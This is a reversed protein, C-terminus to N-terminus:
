AKSKRKTVFSFVQLCAFATCLECRKFERRTKLVESPPGPLIGASIADPVNVSQADLPMSNTSGLQCAVWCAPILGSGLSMQSSGSGPMFPLDGKGAAGGLTVFTFNVYLVRM